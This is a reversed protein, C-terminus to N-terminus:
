VTYRTRRGVYRCADSNASLIVRGERRRQSRRLSAGIECLVATMELSFVFIHPKRVDGDRLLSVTLFPQKTPTM